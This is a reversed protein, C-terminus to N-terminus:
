PIIDLLNNRGNDNGFSEKTESKRRRNIEKMSRNYIINEVICIIGAVLIGFALLILAPAIEYITISRTSLTDLQCEPKRSSWYKIQRNRLGTNFMKTLGIKAIEIFQGNHSAYMGMVSQKFLHIETLECIKNSDFM